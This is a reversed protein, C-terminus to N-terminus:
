GAGLDAVLGLQFNDCSGLVDISGNFFPPFTLSDASLATPTEFAEHPDIIILYFSVHDIFMDQHIRVFTQRGNKDSM